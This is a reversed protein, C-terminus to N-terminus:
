TGGGDDGDGGPNGGDGGPNGRGSVATRLGGTLIVTQDPSQIVTGATM